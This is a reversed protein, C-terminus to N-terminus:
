GPSLKYKGCGSTIGNYAITNIFDEGFSEEPADNFVPELMGGGTLLVTIAPNVPDDSTIRLSTSKLGASAPTFTVDLTYSEGASLVPNLSPCPKTGGARVAFMATDAGNFEMFSVAIGINGFQELYVNAASTSGVNISGSGFNIPPLPSIM